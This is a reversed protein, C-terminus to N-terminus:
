FNRGIFHTKVGVGFMCVHLEAGQLLVPIIHKNKNLALKIERYVMDEPNDIRRKGFDSLDFWQPGIIVLV